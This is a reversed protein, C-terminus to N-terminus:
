PQHKPMSSYKNRKTNLNTEKKGHSLKKLFTILTTETPWMTNLWQVYDEDKLDEAELARTCVYRKDINYLYIGASVDISSYLDSATNHYNTVLVIPKGIYQNFDIM